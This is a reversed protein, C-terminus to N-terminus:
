SNDALNQAHVAPLLSCVWEIIPERTGTQQAQQFAMVILEQVLMQVALTDFKEVDQDHNQQLWERTRSWLMPKVPYLAAAFLACNHESIGRALWDRNVGVDPGAAAVVEATRVPVVHDNQSTPLTPSHQQQTLLKTIRALGTPEADPELAIEAIM